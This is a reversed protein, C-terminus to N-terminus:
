EGKKNENFRKNAVSSYKLSKSLLETLADARSPETKTTAVTLTPEKDLVSKDLEAKTKEEKKEEKEEKKKPFMAVVADFQEDNLTSWKNLEVEVEAKSLGVAELKSARATKKSEEKIAQAETRVVTILENAKALESTLNAIAKDKESVTKVLEENKAIADNLECKVKEMDKKAEADQKTKMEAVQKEAAELRTQLDKIEKEDMINVRTLYSVSKFPKLNVSDFILSRVNAPEEVIGQGTFFFGRLLRGIKKGQYEGKGGYIRLYKSLFATDRNRAIVKHTGGDIIAYDFAPFRCEMSVFWKGEEIEEIIKQIENRREENEWIKYIVFESVVDYRDPIESESINESITKGFEDILFSDTMHGIIDLENHRLNIQKDVITHRAKYTEVKDFVDDNLNWGISALISHKYLLDIQEPNAGAKAINFKAIIEEKSFASKPSIISSAYSVSNNTILDGLGAKIEAEYIDIM